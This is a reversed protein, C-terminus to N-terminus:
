HDRTELYDVLGRLFRRLDEPINLESLQDLCTTRYEQVLAKTRELAGSRQLIHRVEKVEAPGISSNGVFQVLTKKDAVSAHSFALWMPLTKKGQTIDGFNSKGTNETNGFLGMLDDGIQFLLGLHDAVEELGNPASEGAVCYGYKLPLKISYKGTVWVISQEIRKYNLLNSDLPLYDMLFQDYWGWAVEEVARAILQELEVKTRVPLKTELIIKHTASELLNGAIIALANGFHEHDAHGSRQMAMRAHITPVGYRM